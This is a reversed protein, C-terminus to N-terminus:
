TDYKASIKKKDFYGFISGVGIVIKIGLSKFFGEADARETGSTDVVKTKWAKL